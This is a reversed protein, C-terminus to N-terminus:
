RLTSLFGRLLSGFISMRRQYEETAKEDHHVELSLRGLFTTVVYTAPWTPQNAALDDAPWSIDFASRFDGIHLDPPTRLAPVRGWNTAWLQGPGPPLGQPATGPIYPPNRQILGSDLGARLQDCVARGLDVVAAAVTDTPVYNAIGLVNTGETAGVTPSLRPRLNVPFMFTLSTLPLDHLKAEAILMAGSLLGHVTVRERRSYEILATTEPETLRLRLGKHLPQQSEDQYEIAVPAIIDDPAEPVPTPVFGRAALLDEVAIPYPQPEVVGIGGGSVADTYFSWLQALLELSHTADAISHHTFLTVDSYDGFHRVTLVALAERQDPNVGTLLSEAPGDLVKIAHSEGASEVLFYGSDTTEIHAALVPFRRRLADYATALAAPDLRGYVRVSYGVYINGRAFGQESQMM